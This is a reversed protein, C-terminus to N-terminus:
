KTYKIKEQECFLCVLAKQLDSLVIEDINKKILKNWHIAAVSKPFRKAIASGIIYIEFVALNIVSQIVEEKTKM